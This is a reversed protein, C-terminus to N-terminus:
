IGSFPYVFITLLPGPSGLLGDRRSSTASYTMCRRIRSSIGSKLTTEEGSITQDGVVAVVTEDGADIAVGM